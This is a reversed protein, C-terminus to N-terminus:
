NPTGSGGLLNTKTDNFKIKEHTISQIDTGHYAWRVLEREAKKLKELDANLKEIIQEFNSIDDNLQRMEVSVIGQSNYVVKNVKGKKASELSVKMSEIQAETFERLKRLTEDLAFELQGIMVMSDAHTPEISDQIEKICVGLAVWHNRAKFFEDRNAKVKADNQSATIHLYHTIFELREKMIELATQIMNNDRNM